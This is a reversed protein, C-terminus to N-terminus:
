KGGRLMDMFETAASVKGFTPLINEIAFKHMQVSQSACLDEVVEIAFGADAAHRAASEVVFNTAVGGLFLTEIGRVRLIQTLPTGIFPDICAKTIVPEGEGPASEPCFESEESGLRMLGNDEFRSFLETRNSRLLYDEDFALRVHIIPLEAKRAARLCSAVQGLVGRKKVQESLLTPGEPGDRCIGMQYDMLILAARELDELPERM